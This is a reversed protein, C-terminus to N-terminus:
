KVRRTWTGQYSQLNLAPRSIWCDRTQSGCYAPIRKLRLRSGMACLRENDFELLGSIVSISNFLVCFRLDDIWSDGQETNMSWLDWWALKRQMTGIKICTWGFCTVYWRKYQLDVCNLLKSNINWMNSNYLRQLDKICGTTYWCNHKKHCLSNYCM